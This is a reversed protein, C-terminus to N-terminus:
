VYLNQKGALQGCAAMIDKGKSERVTVNVRNNDLMKRFIEIDKKTPSKFSAENCVPSYPILNIKAELRKSISALGDADDQSDNVGKILIYELTIMRGTTNIYDECAGILKELPYKKNIPILKDRLKNNAAHLSISLNVQIGLEKFKEIGPIIGCTSVTVRRSAIGMADPLNMILIAKSVNEYNDLPEGMGMFVFNTIRHKLMHQFFLVQSLIESTSLNRKFHMAGSACFSCAYKCGVQTSLCLTKRGEAYILVAEIFNGDLLEFLIKETKDISKLHKRTKITGIYYFQKLKDRFGKPLNPMSDFDQIGKKYIWHFIQSARYSPKSLKQLEIKLGALTLNKIDKKDM